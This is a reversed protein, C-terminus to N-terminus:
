MAAYFYIYISAAAKRPLKYITDRMWNEARNAHGTEDLKAPQTDRTVGRGKGPHSASPTTDGQAGSFALEDEWPPATGNVATGRRGAPSQASLIVEGCVCLLRADVRRRM